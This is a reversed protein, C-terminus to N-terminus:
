LICVLTSQIITTAQSKILRSTIATMETKVQNFWKVAACYMLDHCKGMAIRYPDSLDTLEYYRNLKKQVLGM